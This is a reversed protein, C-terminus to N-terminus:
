VQRGPSAAFVIWRLACYMLGAEGVGALLRAVLLPTGLSALGAGVGLIMIAYNAAVVLVYLVLQHGVPRRSPFNLWRQLVFALAFACGYAVTIAVPVPWHAVRRLLTLLALDVGFTTTNILLFGILQAPVVADLGFPLLLSTRACARRFGDAFGEM